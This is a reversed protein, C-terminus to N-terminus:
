KYFADVIDFNIYYKSLLLDIVERINIFEINMIFGRITDM